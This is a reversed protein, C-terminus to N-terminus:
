KRFIERSQNKIFSKILFKVSKSEQALVEGTCIELQHL